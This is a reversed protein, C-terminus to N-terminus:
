RTTQPETHAHDRDYEVVRPKGNTFRAWLLQRQIRGAEDMGLSGTEGNIREYRYAHLQSLRPILNYADVGLAYLRLFQEAFEPWLRVIETRLEQQASARGLVWPMDSFLIGDMDRDLNADLKGSYVHSTAYVPLEAARHFNLQPRIQRAEVPFALMFVFEVDQRRRPEFKLDRGLQAKLARMRAESQDISLM